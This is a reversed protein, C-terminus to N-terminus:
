RKQSTKGTGEGGGTCGRKQVCTNWILGQVCRDCQLKRILSLGRWPLFLIKNVDTYKASLVGLWFYANLLPKHFSNIAKSLRYGWYCCTLAQHSTKSKSWFLIQSIELFKFDPKPQHESHSRVALDVGQYGGGWVLLVLLFLSATGCTRSIKTM